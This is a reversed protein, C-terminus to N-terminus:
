KHWQCLQRVRAYAPDNLLKGTGRSVCSIPDEPVFVPVETEHLILEDLGQLLAGGGVLFLGREAIDSALEPPTKELTNKIAQVVEAVPGAIAERIESRCITIQHPKGTDASLGRVEDSDDIETPWASGLRFKLHEATVHGIHLNHMSRLYSVIADDIEDGATRISENAVVGGLSIVAVETTGGGIDVIMTGIPQTVPLDAGIAACLPEAPMCIQSAHACEALQRIAIKEVSTIGAPIAVVLEPNRLSHCTSSVRKMFENLMYSADKLESIVGHKLPRSARITGPTRELMARATEGVAIPLNTKSDVAIVSPERLAIGHDQVYILTNATGLDVGVSTHFWGHFLGM